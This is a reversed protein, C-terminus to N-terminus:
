IYLCFSHPSFSLSIHYLILPSGLNHVYWKHLIKSCPVIVFGTLLMLFLLLVVLGGAGMGGGDSDTGGVASNVENGNEGGGGTVVLAGDDLVSVTGDILTTSTVSTTVDEHYCTQGSRSFIYGTSCDCGYKEHDDDLDDPIDYCKAFEDGNSNCIHSHCGDVEDCPSYVWQESGSHSVSCMAEHSKAGTTSLWGNDCTVVLFNTSGASYLPSIGNIDTANSHEINLDGCAFGTSIDLGFYTLNLWGELVGSQVDDILQVRWLLVVYISCM